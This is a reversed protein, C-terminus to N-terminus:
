CGTVPRGIPPATATLTWAGDPTNDSLSVIAGTAEPSGSKSWSASLGPGDPGEGIESWGGSALASDAHRLVESRPSRSTFHAQVVVADWGATSAQGDCTDWRPEDLHEYEIHADDPVVSAVPRLM